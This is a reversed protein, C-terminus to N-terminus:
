KGPLPHVSLHVGMAGFYVFTVVCLGALIPDTNAIFEIQALLFSSTAQVFVLACTGTWVTDRPMTTLLFTFGMALTQPPIRHASLGAFCASSAKFLGFEVFDQFEYTKCVESIFYLLMVPWALALEGGGFVASFLCNSLTTVGTYALTKGMLGEGKMCIGLVAGFLQIHAAQLYSDLQNAFVYTVNTTFSELDHGVWGQLEPLCELVQIIALIHLVSLVPSSTNSIYNAVAQIVISQMLSQLTQWVACFGPVAQAVSLLVHLCVVILVLGTPSFYNLLLKNIQTSLVVAASRSIAALAKEGLFLTSM